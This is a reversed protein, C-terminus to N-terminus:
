WKFIRACVGDSDIQITEDHHRVGDSLSLHHRGAALVIKVPTPGLNRGDVVVDTGVPDSTVMLMGVNRTMSVFVSSSAPANFIKRAIGYGSLDASLTHRGAAL